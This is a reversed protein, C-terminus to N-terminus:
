AAVYDCDGSRRLESLVFLQTLAFPKPKSVVDAINAFCAM